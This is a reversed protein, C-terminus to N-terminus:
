FRDGVSTWLFCPCCVKNACVFIILKDFHVPRGMEQKMEKVWLDLNEFSQRNSTDYVLLAASFVNRFLM